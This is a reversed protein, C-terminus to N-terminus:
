NVTMSASTHSKFEMGTTGDSFTKQCVFTCRVRYTEGAVGQFFIGYTYSPVNHGTQGPLLGTIDSWITTGNELTFLKQVCFTAVGLEDCMGMGVTTFAVHLRHSGADTLATGYSIFYNSSFPEAPPDYAASAPFCLGLMLCAVIVLTITRKM